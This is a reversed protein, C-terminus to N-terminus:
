NNKATNKISQAYVNTIHM